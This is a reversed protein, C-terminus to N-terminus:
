GRTADPTQARAHAALFSGVPSHASIGLQECVNEATLPFAARCSHCTESLFVPLTYKLGATRELHEAIISHALAQRPNEHRSDVPCVNQWECIRGKLCTQVFVSGPLRWM